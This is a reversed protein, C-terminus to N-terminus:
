ASRAIGRRADGGALRWGLLPGKFAESAKADPSMLEYRWVLDSRHTAM